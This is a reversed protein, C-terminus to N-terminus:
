EWRTFPTPMKIKVPLTLGVLPALITLVEPFQAIAQKLEETAKKQKPNAFLSTM